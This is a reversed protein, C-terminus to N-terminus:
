GREEGEGGAEAGSRRGSSLPIERWGRLEDRSGATSGETVM